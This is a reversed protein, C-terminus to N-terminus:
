GHERRRGLRQRLVEAITNVVFTFAFLICATFFLIQYHASSVDAEPLEIALNATLARLGEILGWSSIPTNGTVMLVIMTEGFARGFGLMIAAIIGPLSVHLVVHMLTQLRTAGLAFSANKLEEPVGNIADEALSYISPSIAIGLAIAVVITTKGIPSDSGSALLAFGDVGMISFIFQPAFEVSVFALLFTGLLAFVLESGHRIRKPLYHAVQRQFLSVIILAIPVFVMFFAVSFLFQEAKPSLWIAAIFGILVSPIAELMEISPKLLHRLRAKAFYATYIAAGIAVPIAIVLALLSAKFSGIMLPTLSFKAEQYDSASTTQWVTEETDYGEYHQPEFLSSWTTIGSLYKGQWATVTNSSRGILADGHWDIDSIAKESQRSSIIEGTIRNILLLRNHSTLVSIMNMSAHEAIDLTVEGDSLVIAYTKQFHLGESGKSLVWRALVNTDNNHLFFSRQKALPFVLSVGGEYPVNSIFPDSASTKDHLRNLYIGDNKHLLLSESGPMLTIHNVDSFHKDIFTTPAKRNVWRVFVGSDLTVQTVVWQNSLQIQWQKQGQWIQKPLAFAITNPPTNQIAKEDLIQDASYTRVPILRVQGAPSIDIIFNEGMVSMASLTHECPKTYDQTNKLAGESFALLGLQCNTKKALLPQGNFIDGTSIISESNPVTVHAVLKLTPTYTLPIAQSILHSVLVVLTLLVLGGFGTVLFRARRDTRQRKSNISDTDLTM